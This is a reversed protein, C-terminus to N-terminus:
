NDETILEIQSIDCDWCDEDGDKVTILTETETKKIEVVTGQFINSFYDGPRPTVLVFSGIKPYYNGDEDSLVEVWKGADDLEMIPELNSDEIQEQIMEDMEMYDSQCPM